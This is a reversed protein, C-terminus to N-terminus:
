AVSEIWKNWERNSRRCRLANLNELTAQLRNRQGDVQPDVIQRIHLLLVAVVLRGDSRLELLGDSLTAEFESGVFQPLGVDAPLRISFPDAAHDGHVILQQGRGRLSVVSVKVPQNTPKADGYAFLTRM